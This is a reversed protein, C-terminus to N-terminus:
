GDENTQFWTAPDVPAKGERVEIYLTESRANGSGEGSQSLIAGSELGNGGMLGIPAGEPIVEGADGYVQALGGLVFLVGPQPELIMVNGYDL